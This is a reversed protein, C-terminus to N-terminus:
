QSAGGSCYGDMLSIVDSDRGHLAYFCASHGNLDKLDLNAGHELLLQVHKASGSGAAFMLPTSHRPGRVDPNAGHALVLRAARLDNNHISHHLLSVGHNDRVNVDAGREVLYQVVEDQSTMVAMFLPTIGGEMRQNVDLGGALLGGVADTDGQMIAQFLREEREEEVAGGFVSDSPGAWCPTVALWALFVFFFLSGRKTM